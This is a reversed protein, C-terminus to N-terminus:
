GRKGIQAWVSRRRAVTFVSDVRHPALSAPRGTLLSAIREGDLVEVIPSGQVTIKRAGVVAVIARVPVSHGCWRELLRTVRAAEFEANALYPYSVRNVLVRKDGVWVSSDPHHKTNVTFVGPPGIVVHDIDAGSPLPVSHLVHWGHGRLGNLHSGVIEEGRLGTVLKQSTLPDGALKAAVRVLWKRQDMEERIMGQVGTGPLNGALDDEATFPPLAPISAAAVATPRLPPDQQVRIPAPEPSAATVTRAPIPRGSAAVWEEVKALAAARLREVKIEVAGTRCDLWAVAEGRAGSLNVYLREKGPVRWLKVTLEQM